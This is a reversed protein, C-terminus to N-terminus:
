ASVVLEAVTLTECDYYVVICALSLLKVLVLQECTVHWLVVYTVIVAVYAVVVHVDGDCVVFIVHQEEYLWLLM